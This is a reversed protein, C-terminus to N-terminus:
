CPILTERLTSPPTESWLSLVYGGGGSGTPKVAIAGASKLIELHQKVAGEALGWAEFCSGAQDISRILLSLGEGEEMMLAREGDRAAQKMRDDLRRGEEPKEEILRKVKNVADSTVGRQGTYSIFWRPRWKPVVAFQRGEREFHLGEGSIAVAIDVGSSEGHFLNELTRAFEALDSKKLHGLHHFWRTMAVCFAASAGLGAGIPITSEIRLRGKLGSRPTRMLDCARELVAWFLPELESGKSGRFEVSLPEAGDEHSIKMSRSKLPFVLAPSGRLVAHEGALIWKGFSETQFAM